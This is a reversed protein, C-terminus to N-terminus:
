RVRCVGVEKVCEVDFVDFNLSGPDINAVVTERGFGVGRVQVYVRHVAVSSM